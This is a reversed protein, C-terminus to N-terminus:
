GEAAAQELHAVLDDLTDLDPWTGASGVRGIPPGGPCSTAFGEIGAVFGPGSDDEFAFVVVRLGPVLVDEFAEAQGSPLGHELWVYLQDALRAAPPSKFVAEV